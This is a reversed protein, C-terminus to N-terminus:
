QYIELPQWPFDMDITGEAEVALLPHGDRWCLKSVAALEREEVPFIGNKVEETIDPFHSLYDWIRNKFGYIGYFLPSNCWNPYKWHYNVVKGEELETAMGPFQIGSVDRCILLQTM